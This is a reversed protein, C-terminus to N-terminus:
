GSFHSPLWYKLLLWATLNKFLRCSQQFYYFSVSGDDYPLLLGEFHSLKSLELFVILFFHVLFFYVHAKSSGIDAAFRSTGVLDPTGPSINIIAIVSIRAYSSGRSHINQISSPANGDKREGTLHCWGGEESTLAVVIAM